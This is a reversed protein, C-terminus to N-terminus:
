SFPEDPHRGSDSLATEFRILSLLNLLLIVNATAPRSISEVKAAVSALELLSLLPVDAKLKRFNPVSALAAPIPSAKTDKESPTV